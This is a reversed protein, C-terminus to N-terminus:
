RRVGGCFRCRKIRDRGIRIDKCNCRPCGGSVVVGARAMESLAKRATTAPQHIKPKPM